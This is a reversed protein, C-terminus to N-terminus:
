DSHNGAPEDTNGMKALLCRLQNEVEILKKVGNTIEATALDSTQLSSDNGVDMLVLAEPPVGLASAVKRIVGLSPQRDGSEILSMFPVSVDSSKALESLKLEKALRIIRITKGLNEMAPSVLQFCYTPRPFGELEGNVEPHLSATM